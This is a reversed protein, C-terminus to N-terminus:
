KDKICEYQESQDNYKAKELVTMGSKDHSLCYYILYKRENGQASFVTLHARYPLDFRQASSSLDQTTGPKVVGYEFCTDTSAPSYPSRGGSSNKLQWMDLPQPSARRVALTGFFYPEKKTYDDKPYFYCPVNNHLTAILEGDSIASRAFVNNLLAWTLLFVYSSNQFSHRM